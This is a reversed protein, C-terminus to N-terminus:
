PESYSPSSRDPASRHLCPGSYGPRRFQSPIAYTARSSVAIRRQSKVTAISIASAIGPACTLRIRRKGPRPAAHYRFEWTMPHSRLGVWLLQYTDCAMLRMKGQNVVRPDRRIQLKLYVIDFTVPRVGELKVKDNGAVHGGGDVVPRLEYVPYILLAREVRM